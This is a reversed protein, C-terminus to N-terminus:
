KKKKATAKAKPQVKPKPKAKFKNVLKVERNGMPTNIRVKGKTGYIFRSLFNDDDGEAIAEDGQINLKLKM